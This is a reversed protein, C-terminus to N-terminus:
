YVQLAAIIETRRMRERISRVEERSPNESMNAIDLLFPRVTELVRRTGKDGSAEADLQLAANEELLKRSIGKEYSVNVATAGEAARTNRFSRLLMQAREVHRAVEKEEPDLLRAADAVPDEDDFSAPRIVEAAESATLHDPSPVSASVFAVEDGGPTAGAEARVRGRTARPAASRTRAQSAATAGARDSIVSSEPAEVDGESAPSEDGREARTTETTAAPRPADDNVAVLNPQTNPTRGYWLAGVAVGLVLLALSSAYAPRLTVAAFVAALRGRLGSAFPTAAALPAAKESSDHREVEARVREWLAPTVEVGRDYRLYLDQEAALADLAESCEACAALHAGMAEATRGELEGDFFEEVLPLCEECRM